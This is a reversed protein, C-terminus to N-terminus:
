INFSLTIFLFYFKLILVVAGRLPWALRGQVKPKNFSQWHGIDDFWINTAVRRHQLRRKTFNCIKLGSVKSFLSELVAALLKGSQHNPSPNSSEYQELLVGVIKPCFALLDLQPQDKGVTKNLWLLASPFLPWWRKKYTITIHYCAVKKRNSWIDWKNTMYKVIVPQIVNIVKKIKQERDLLM